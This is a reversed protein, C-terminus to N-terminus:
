FKYVQSENYGMDKLIGSLPGQSRDPLKEGSLAALMPNPGCVFIMNDDSPPPLVKNIHEKTVYGEGGEWNEPPKELVYYVNFNEYREALKDFQDKLLIDKETVNAFILSLKTEDRPNSLVEHLVQMMPTIGTGGAIMGIEKKMNAKYPIKPIPGKVELTDGKRLSHILSSMKGNPYNKVMLDFYGRQDYTIPTYPRVVPEEEGEIDGRVIICSAVPLDLRADKTQLLFRFIKTNHNVSFVKDLPFERWAEPSFGVEGNAAQASVLPTSWNRMMWVAISGPILAYSLIMMVSGFKTKGPQGLGFLTGHRKFSKPAITKINSTTRPLTQSAKRIFM